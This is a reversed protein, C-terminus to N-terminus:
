DVVLCASIETTNVYLMVRNLACQVHCTIVNYIIGSGSFPLVSKSIGLYFLSSGISLLLAKNCVKVEVAEVSFYLDCCLTGNKSSSDVCTNVQM